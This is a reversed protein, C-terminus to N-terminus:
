QSFVRDLISRATACDDRTQVEQDCLETMIMTQLVRAEHRDEDSPLSAIFNEVDLQTDCEWLQDCLAVQSQTLGKLTIM